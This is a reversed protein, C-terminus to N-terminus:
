RADLFDLVTALQAASALEHGFGREDMLLTHTVGAKDYRRHVIKMERQNFDRNGTLFVLRRTKLLEDAPEVFDAGAIFLAGDFYRAFLAVCRSAVRGGGSFGAVYTRHAEPPHLRAALKVAMLAVLVREAALRSNGFGDAAIWMLRRDELVPIWAPPIEGSDTPSVYVLIGAPEAGHARRVRFSVERDAPLTKSLSAAESASFLQSLTVLHAETSEQAAAVSGSCVLLATCLRVLRTRPCAM